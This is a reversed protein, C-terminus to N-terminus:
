ESTGETSKDTETKIESGGRESIRENKNYMSVIKGIERGKEKEKEKDEIGTERDRERKNQRQKNRRRVTIWQNRDLNILPQRNDGARGCPSSIVIRLSTEIDEDRENM